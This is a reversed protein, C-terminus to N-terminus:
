PQQPTDPPPSTSNNAKEQEQLWKQVMERLGPPLTSGDGTPIPTTPDLDGTAVLEAIWRTLIDLQNYPQDPQGAEPENHQEPDSM